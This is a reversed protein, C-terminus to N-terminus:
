WWLVFYVSNDICANLLEDHLTQLTTYHGSSTAFSQKHDPLHHGTSILDGSTRLNNCHIHPIKYVYIPQKRQEKQSLIMKCFFANIRPNPKPNPNCKCPTFLTFNLFLRNNQIFVVSFAHYCFHCHLCLHPKIILWHVLPWIHFWALFCFAFGAENVM